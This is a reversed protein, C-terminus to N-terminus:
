QTKSKGSHVKNKLGIWVAMHVGTWWEQRSCLVGGHVCPMHGRQEGTIPVGPAVWFLAAMLLRMHTWNQVWTAIKKSLKEDM